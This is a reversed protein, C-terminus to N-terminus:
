CRVLSHRQSYATADNAIDAIAGGELKGASFIVHNLSRWLFLSSPDYWYYGMEPNYSTNLKPIPYSHLVCLTGRLMYPYINLGHGSPQKHSCNKKSSLSTRSTCRFLSVHCLIMPRGGGGVYSIYEGGNRFRHICLGDGMSCCGGGM